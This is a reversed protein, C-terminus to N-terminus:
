TVDTKVVTTQTKSARAITTFPNGQRSYLYQHGTGIVYAYAEQIQAMTPSNIPNNIKFTSDYNQSDVLVIDLTSSTSTTTAM